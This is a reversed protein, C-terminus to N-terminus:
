GISNGCIVQCSKDRKDIIVLDLRRAGIEHDTRVSYDWLLKYDENELVSESVHEYWTEKREFGCKGSLDWHIERAVSDHRRKYENQELKSCSSVIHSITENSQKCIRCKSDNQSKDVMM